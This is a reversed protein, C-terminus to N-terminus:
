NNSRSVEHWLDTEASYLLEIVDGVAGVWQGSLALGTGDDLTLTNSASQIIITMRYSDYPPDAIQPDATIDINSDEMFVMVPAMYSATIGNSQSIYTNYATYPVYQGKNIIYNNYGETKWYTSNAGFSGQLFNNDAKDSLYFGLQGADLDWVYVNQFINNDGCLHIITDANANTQIVINSFQNGDFGLGGATADQVTLFRRPNWAVTGQFQNANAWGGSSSIIARFVDKCGYVKNDIFHNIVPEYEGNSVLHVFDWTYTTGYFYGGIVWADQVRAGATTFIPGAYDAEVTLFANKDIDIVVGSKLTISDDIFWAGAPIIVTGRSYASAAEIADQIASVDSVTGGDTAGYSLINFAGKNDNNIRGLMMKPVSYTLDQAALGASIFLIIIILLKKM